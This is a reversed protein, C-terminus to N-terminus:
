IKIKSLISIQNKKYNIFNINKFDETKYDYKWASIKNNSASIFLVNYEEVFCTTLAFLGKNYKNKSVDIRYEDENIKYVGLKQTTNQFPNNQNNNINEINIISKREHFHHIENINELKFQNLNENNFYNYAEIREQREKEIKILAKKNLENLEVKNIENQTQVLDIMANKRKNNQASFFLIKSKGEHVIGIMKFKKIYFCHSIINETKNSLNNYMSDDLEEQHDFFEEKSLSYHQLGYASFEYNQQYSSNIIYNVFEEWELDGNSNLDIEDFLRSLLKILIKSRNPLNPYWTLLHRKLISVFTEKNLKGLHEKYHKKMIKITYPDFGIKLDAFLKEEKEKINSITTRPSYIFEFYQKTSM